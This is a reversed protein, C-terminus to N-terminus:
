GVRPPVSLNALRRNWLVLADERPSQYYDRRVGEVVFGLKEYLARAAANSSRVELTASTAGAARADRFVEQLLQTALGKRRWEPAVAFSNIHLEDFVVWCACFAVLTEAERMVYLRAVDTNELEWKIADAGWPNTFATKQLAEVAVLDQATAARTITWREGAPSAEAPGGLDTTPRAPVPQDPRSARARERAVEADPRRIYIPRLAHPATARDSHRAAIRAASEALLGGPLIRTVRSLSRWHDEYRIAGDGAVVVPSDGSAQRVAEVAEAPTVAAPEILCEEVGSTGVGARRWAALFVDGRLGDQCAVAVSPEPTDAVAIGERLAELTPVGVVRKHAALALGQVAAIGVRLGTFSGPGTIVAVVNVDDLRRGCIELWALLEGPLRETHTASADGARAHMVDGDLLALSGARTVTELALIVM